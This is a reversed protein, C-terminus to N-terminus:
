PSFRLAELFARIVLRGGDQAGTATLLIPAGNTESVVPVSILAVTPRGDAGTRYSIAASPGPWIGFTFRRTQYGFAADYLTFTRSDSAEYPLTTLVFAGTKLAPLTGSFGPLARKPTVPAGNDLSISRVSDPVPVLRTIPLLFLAPNDLNDQFDSSSQPVTVPTHVILRGGGDFFKQMAPAAFPLNYRSPSDTAQTSVWYIADFLALTERLAPEQTPGLLPSRTAIGTSGTVFPSAVNWVDPTVGGFAERLIGLHYGIVVNNSPKRYDNVVLVRTKPKKVYWPTTAGRAPYRVIASTTDTQDAARAYLTNRANLRLGPVSINTRQFTRGLYVRATTTTQAANSRDIEGVLTVYQADAPLSVFTTSDNLSIEVRALNTIGEPDSANLGFSAITFTTDPPVDTRSIEISPPSNRIPFVTRAPTPDKAGKNDIARVEVVVNATRSGRAIPLLITTDRATTRTWGVEPGPTAGGDAYYRLEYAAVFGDPDTGSWSLAITSSLRDAEEIQGVLTSARVSLETTPPANDNPTGSIGGDCASLTATALVLLFLRKM